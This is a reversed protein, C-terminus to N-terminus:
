EGKEKLEKYWRGITANHKLSEHILKHLVHVECFTLVTSVGIVVLALMNIEM